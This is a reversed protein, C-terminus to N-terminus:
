LELPDPTYDFNKAAGDRELDRVSERVWTSLEDANAAPESALLTEIVVEGKCKKALEFEWGSEVASELGEGLQDPWRNGSEVLSGAHVGIWIDGKKCTATEIVILGYHLLGDDWKKDAYRVGALANSEAAADLALLTTRAQDIARIPLEPALAVLAATGAKATEADTGELSGVQAADAFAAVVGMLDEEDTFEHGLAELKPVAEAGLNRAYAELVGLYSSRERAMPGADVASQLLAQIGPERCDALSRYWRDTWFEDGLVTGTAILFDAVATNEGCASGIASITKSREDSQLAAIWTRAEDGAGVEVATIVLQNGADGSLVRDFANSAAGRARAPDCAALAEFAMAVGQPSAEGLENSLANADCAWSPDVWVLSLLFLSM